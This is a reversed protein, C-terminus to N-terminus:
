PTPEEIPGAIVHVSAEWIYVANDYRGRSIPDWEGIEVSWVELGEGLHRQAQERVDYETAKDLAATTARFTFNM